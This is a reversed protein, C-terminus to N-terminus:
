DTFYPLARRRVASIGGLFGCDEMLSFWEQVTQPTAFLDGIIDLAQFIVSLAHVIETLLTRQWEVELEETQISKEDTEREYGNGISDIVRRLLKLNRAIVDEPQTPRDDIALVPYSTEQAQSSGMIQKRHNRLSNAQVLEAAMAFYRREALYTRFIRLRRAEEKDFESWITDADLTAGSLPLLSSTQGDSIGAAERLNIADQTSIPGALHSAPRSQYELVAIRLAAVLNLNAGKSLWNADEKITNVDYEGSTTPTAHIASTKTEFDNKAAETPPGFATALDQFISRVFDDQLYETLVKSGRRANPEDTLASAVLRWSSPLVSDTHAPQSLCPSPLLVNFSCM